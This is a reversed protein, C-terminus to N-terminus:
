SGDDDGFCVKSTYPLARPGQQGAVRGRREVLCRTAHEVVWVAEATKKATEVQKASTASMKDNYNRNQEAIADAARCFKRALRVQGVQEARM